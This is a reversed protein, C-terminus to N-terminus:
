AMDFLLFEVKQSTPNSLTLTQRGQVKTVFAGDGAHLTTDTDDMTVAGAKDVVHLYLRRTGKGGSKAKRNPHASQVRHVVSQGPELICAFTYLDTHIGITDDLVTGSSRDTPANIPDSYPSVIPLLHNTKHADSFTQTVYGPDLYPFDPKVWIQLLHCAKHPHENKESHAIGSGATTFQVDGRQLTEVNGMSDRHELEGSVVYTFIEYERHRHMGFGAKARIHDENLVRLPGFETFQADFYDAFSFTHHTNLWGLDAHGRSKSRRPVVDLAAM